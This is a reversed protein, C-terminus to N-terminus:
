PATGAAAFAVVDYGRRCLPVRCRLVSDMTTPLCVSKWGSESRLALVDYGRRCLLMILQAIWCGASKLICQWSPWVCASCGAAMVRVCLAACLCSALRIVCSCDCRGGFHQVPM